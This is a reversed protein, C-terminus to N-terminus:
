NESPAAQPGKLTSLEKELRELLQRAKQIQQELQLIRAQKHNDNLQNETPMCSQITQFEGWGLAKRYAKESGPPVVLVVTSAHYPEFIDGFGGNYFPHHNLDRVESSEIVFTRLSPCDHFANRLIGVCHPLIVTTLNHCGEFAGPGIEAVPYERGNHVVSAPIRAETITMDLCTDITVFPADWNSYLFIGQSFRAVRGQALATLTILMFMLLIAHRCKM